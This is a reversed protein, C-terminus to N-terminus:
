RKIFKQVSQGNDSLALIVYMGSALGSIDVIDTNAPLSMILKGDQSYIEITKIFSSSLINLQDDAPNPYVNFDFENDDIGADNGIYACYDEFEGFFQFGPCAIPGEQGNMGIRMKTYGHTATTPITISSNLVTNTTQNSLLEEGVDFTGSQDLDVWISFHETFNFGTYGPTLEVSYSQGPIFGGMLNESQLWGGNEGTASYYTGGIVVSEIWESTVTAGMVPCYEAEYCAGCGLTSFLYSSSFGQTSDTCITKIQFEYTTCSDLGSITIPSVTDLFTETWSVDGETRYRFDYQTGYLIDSWSIILTDPSNYDLILEPNDCCGDTKFKFELSYDSTDLGCIGRVWSTYNTCPVLTDFFITDNGNVPIELIPGSGEQLYFLYNTSFGDWVLHAATDTILEDRLYYPQVCATLNCNSLISDIANNVNLRGGTAVEGVLSPIVDVSSLIYNRMQLATGAPDLKAQNIFEACPTSYALAIAGTVLPAAFSTGNKNTYFDGTTTTRVGFGPAGLDVHTTGYGSGAREDINNTMTVGILYDSPCTTPLDGQVDVNTNSNSTSGVNLIGHVGLSDYMACWIPADAAQGNNIGWSANTAVVFAGEQGSSENYRKRMTLPYDYAEIVSSEVGVNQGKIIMMKVNWNVGSIGTINDGSAGIMGAVQTGHSGAGVADNDTSVNWGDFDDIYGNGDNDIGDDPIEAYNHWINDKLDIHFIDVGQSEIVCVVITDEHTTLGGTTVDWADSADIDADVTGGGQGTNRLHWQEPFITDSPITERITVYHNYQANVVGEQEYFLARCKGLNVDKDEFKILYVNVTESLLEVSELHIENEASYLHIQEKADVKKSFQVMLEGPVYSEQSIASIPLCVVLFLLLRNM